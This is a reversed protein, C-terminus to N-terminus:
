VRERCSARGIEGKFRELEVRFDIKDSIASSAGLGYFVDTGDDEASGSVSGASVSIKNDWKHFGVKVFPTITDGVNFKYIGAVGISKVKATVTVGDVLFEYVTGEDTFRDGTNGSLTAEGLNAYHGEIAFNEDINFGAFIKTANDKEDLSATGTLSNIGTDLTSQGFSIGAYGQSSEEAAFATFSSTTLFLAALATNLKNKM